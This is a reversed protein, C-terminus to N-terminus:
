HRLIDSEALAAENTAVMRAYGIGQVGALEDVIDVSSLFRVFDERALGGRTASLLGRAARLVVVHQEVRSTIRDIAQDAVREFEAALRREAGTHQVVTMALGPLFALVFVLKPLHAGLFAKM